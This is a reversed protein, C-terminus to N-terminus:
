ASKAQNVMLQLDPRGVLRESVKGGSNPDSKAETDSQGASSDTSQGTPREAGASCAKVLPLMEDVSVRNKRFTARLRAEDEPFVCSLVLNLMAANGAPTDKGDSDAISAALELRAYESPANQLKFTEGFITHTRVTDSM